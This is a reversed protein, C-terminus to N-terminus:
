ATKTVEIQAALKPMTNTFTCFIEGFKTPDFRLTASTVPANTPLGTHIPQNNEDTSSTGTLTRPADGGAANQEGAGDAGVGGGYGCSLDGESAACQGTCRKTRM